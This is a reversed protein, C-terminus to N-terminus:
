VHYPLILQHQHSYPKINKNSLKRDAYFNTFASRTAPGSIGDLAKGYYGLWSLKLQNEYTLDKAMAFTTTSLLILWGMVLIPNKIKEGM